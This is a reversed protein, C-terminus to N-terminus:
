VELVCVLDFVGVLNIEMNEQLTFVHSCNVQQNVFGVFAKHNGGKMNVCGSKEIVVAHRKPSTM